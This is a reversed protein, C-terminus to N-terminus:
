GSPPRRRQQVAVMLIRGITVSCHSQVRGKQLLLHPGRDSRRIKSKSYDPISGAFLPSRRDVGKKEQDGM